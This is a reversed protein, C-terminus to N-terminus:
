IISYKMILLCPNLHMAMSVEELVEDGGYHLHMFLNDSALPQLHKQM